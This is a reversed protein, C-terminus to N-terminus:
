KIMLGLRGGRAGVLCEVTLRVEGSGGVAGSLVGLESWVGLDEDHLSVKYYGCPLRNRRSM